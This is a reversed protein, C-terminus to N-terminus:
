ARRGPAQRAQAGSATGHRPPRGEAGRQAPRGRPASLSGSCAAIGRTAVEVRLREAPHAAKM